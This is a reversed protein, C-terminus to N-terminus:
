LKIPFSDRCRKLPRQSRGPDMHTEETMTDQKCMFYINKMKVGKLVMVGKPNNILNDDHMIIQNYLVKEQRYINLLNFHNHKGMSHLTPNKHCLIWTLRQALRFNTLSTRAAKSSFIERVGKLAM